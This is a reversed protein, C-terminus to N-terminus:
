LHIVITNTKESLLRDLARCEIALGGTRYPQDLRVAPPTQGNVTISRPGPTGDDIKYCIRVPKGLLEWDVELGNLAAPLVPDFVVRNGSRRLGLMHRVVLSVALGPGSSYIRWGGRVPVTGDVVRAYDRDAEYRDAFAADSSSFTCNAQRIVANPVTRDLEVPVIRMLGDLVDDARGLRAMAELYRIHAHVYMIGIERGFFSATEGRQFVHQRGGDYRPPRDMLRAGDPALLHEGILDAHRHAEAPTFIGSLVGRVMPLLRYHIGTRTDSPHLLPECHGDAGLIGFGCVTEDPILRHHFERRVRSAFDALPGAQEPRGARRWLRSLANLTQYCLCVTWSSVMTEALRGDAPQLSDNWDGHGYAVLSMGPLLGRRIHEVARDIHDALTEDPGPGDHYPLLRELVSIDGTAEVYECVALIPWYVVDGHAKDSRVGRHEDFMFWQPWGGDPSQNAFVTELIARVDRDGGLALLMEVPGQCVDRTGWAAGLYQELGHPASLHVAANHVFWPLITGLRQMRPDASRLTLGGALAAPADAPSSTDADLAGTFALSFQRVTVTDITLFPGGRSHGDAFLAEDGGVRAVAAWDGPRIRVWADPNRRGFRTHAPPRLTIAGPGVAVVEGLDPEDGPSGMVVDTVLLFRRPADSKLDVSVIRNDPSIRTRVEVADRGCRYLWMCGDTADIFASPVALLEWRGGREVFVRLGGKLVVALPDRRVGTAVNLSLNGVALHSVFVGQMYATCSLAGRAAVWEGAGRPIAGTPREQLLDKRRLVVHRNGATFFSLARGDADIEEHLRDPWMEAVQADSLDESAFLRPSALLNAERNQPQFGGDPETVVPSRSPVRDLDAPGTPEPHDAVYVAFFEVGRRGGPALTVPASQLAVLSFEYQRRVSGLALRDLAEPRRTVRYPLGYFDFGDTVFSECGSRCGLMLWPHRGDQAMNQRSCSVHGMEPHVLVTHDVYQSIYAENGANSMSVDQALVLDCAIQNTSTNDLDVQWSWGTEESLVLTLRYEVDGLTGRVVMSDAGFAVQGPSASGLLPTWAAVRDGDLLRLYVNACSGECTNGAYLTIPVDPAHISRVAGSNLLAFTIGGATVAKEGDHPGSSEM